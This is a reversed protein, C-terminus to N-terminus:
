KKEELKFLLPVELVLKEREILLPSPFPSARRLTAIGEEDLEPYGSSQVLRIESVEGNPNIEFSLVVKGEWGRRRAERPYRKAKEIRMRANGLYSSLNGRGKGEGQFYVSGTKAGKPALKGKGGEVGGPSGAEGGAGKGWPNIAALGGPIGTLASESDAALGMAPEERALRVPEAERPGEPTGWRGPEAEEMWKVEPKEEVEIKQEHVQPAEPIRQETAPVVAPSPAEEQERPIVPQPAPKPLIVERAKKPKPPPPTPPAVTQEQKEEVIRVMVVKSSSEPTHSFAWTMLFYALAGHLTLSPIFSWSPVRAGKPSAILDLEGESFTRTGM